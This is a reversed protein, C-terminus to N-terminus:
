MRRGKCLVVWEIKCDSVISLRLLKDWHLRHTTEQSTPETM